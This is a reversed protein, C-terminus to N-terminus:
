GAVVRLLDLVVKMAMRSDVIAAPFTYHPAATGVSRSRSM